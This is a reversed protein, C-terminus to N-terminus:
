RAQVPTVSKMERRERKRERQSERQNERQNARRRERGRLTELHTDREHQNVGYIERQQGTERM